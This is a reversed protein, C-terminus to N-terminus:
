KLRTRGLNGLWDPPRVGIVKLSTVAGTLTMIAGPLLGVNLAVFMAPCWVSALLIYKHRNLAGRNLLFACMVGFLWSTCLVALSIWQPYRWGSLERHLEQM